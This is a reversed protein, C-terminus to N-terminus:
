HCKSPTLSILHCDLILSFYKVSKRWTLIVKKVECSMLQILENQINKGLYHDSIKDTTVQKVHDALVPDFKAILEVLGLFNGNNMEYLRESSGRFAMNHQAIFQVIGFLREFVQRWRRIEIQIINQYASDIGEHGNLNVELEHWKLYSEIHRSSPEHEKLMASIHSWDTIGKGRLLKTNPQFLECCFCMISDFRISYVLWRRRIAEGNHLIRKYNISTFKRNNFNKPFKYETVQHPGYKVIADRLRLNLQTPWTSPDNFNTIIHHSERREM